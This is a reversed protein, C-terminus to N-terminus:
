DIVKTVEVLLRLGVRLLSKIIKNRSGLIGIVGQVFSRETKASFNALRKNVGKIKGAM